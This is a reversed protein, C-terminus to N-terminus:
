AEFAVAGYGVVAHPDGFPVDASNAYALITGRGAGLQRAATMAAAIPAAGCACTVLGPVGSGMHSSITREFGRSDLAAVAALTARDVREADAKEPYHSLDSSAVILARRPRVVEAIAAGLQACADPESCGVVVPLVAALPFLRQAFPLQIEISHEYQHPLPDSVCRRPLLDLLARAAGGDVATLGLPTRWAGRAWVSVRDFGALSHNPGLIVILDFVHRRAQRWAEAIIRGCFSYGAHPSVIAVPPGGLPANASALSSDVIDALAARDSPYFEGAVAPPRTPSGAPRGHTGRGGASLPVDM